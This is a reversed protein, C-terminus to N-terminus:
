RLANISGTNPMRLSCCPARRKKSRPNAATWASHISRAAAKLRRVRARSQRCGGCRTLPPVTAGHGGALFLVLPSCPGPRRGPSPCVLWGGGALVTEDGGSRRESVRESHREARRAQSSPQTNVPGGEPALRTAVRPSARRCIRAPRSPPEDGASRLSSRGRKMSWYAIRSM